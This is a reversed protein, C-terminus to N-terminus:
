KDVGYSISLENLVQIKAKIIEVRKKDFKTYKLNNFNSTYDIAKIEDRLHEIKSTILENIKKM